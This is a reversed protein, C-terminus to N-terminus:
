LEKEPKKDYGHKIVQETLWNLFGLYLLAIVPLLFANLGLDTTKYAQSAQQIKDSAIFPSLTSYIESRCMSWTFLVLQLAMVIGFSPWYLKQFIKPTRLAIIGLGGAIALLITIHIPNM